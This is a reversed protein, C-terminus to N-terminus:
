VESSDSHVDFLSSFSSFSYKQGVPVIKLNVVEYPDTVDNPLAKDVHLFSADLRIWKALFSDSESFINRPNHMM